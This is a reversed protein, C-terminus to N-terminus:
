ALGVSERWARSAADRRAKIDPGHRDFFWSPVGRFALAQDRAAALDRAHWIAVEIAQRWEAEIASREEPSTDPLRHVADAEGAADPPWPDADYSWFGAPRTGDRGWEAMIRDRHLAWAARRHADDEFPCWARRSADDAFQRGPALFYVCGWALHQEEEDTLQDVRRKPQRRKIPM